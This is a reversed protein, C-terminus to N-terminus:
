APVGVRARRSARELPAVFMAALGAIAWTALVTVPGLVGAGDFYLAGRLASYAQGPPMFPAISRYADPLLESGLPGGSAVIGLLVWSWRPSRSARRVSFM